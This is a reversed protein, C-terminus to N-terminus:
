GSPDGPFKKGYSCQGTGLCLKRIGLKWGRKRRLFGTNGTLHICPRVPLSVLDVRRNPFFTRLDIAALTALAGGFSHGTAVISFNPLGIALADVAALMDARIFNYETLM